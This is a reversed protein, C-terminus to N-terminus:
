KGNTEGESKGKIVDIANRLVDPIPIGMKGANEIISMLENAAYAFVVADRITNIGLLSDIQAAVAVIALIFVKKVIGVFGVKSNYAGTETKESNKFIISVTVGAFWDLIMFGVLITIGKTWGGFISSAIGAVVGFLGVGWNMEPIFKELEHM